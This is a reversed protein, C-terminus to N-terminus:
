MATYGGDVTLSAGTIYSADESALFLIAWAVERPQGARGVFTKAGEEKNFQELTMGTKEMHRFSAPTIISGPCVANVRIKHAGLDMAMNRTM